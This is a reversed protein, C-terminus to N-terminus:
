YLKCLDPHLFASGDIDNLARRLRLQTRIILIPLKSRDNEDIQVVEHIKPQRNQNGEPITEDKEQTEQKAIAQGPVKNAGDQKKPAERGERKKIVKDTAMTELQQQKSMTRM